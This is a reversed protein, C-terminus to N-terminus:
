VVFCGDCFFVCVCWVVGGTKGRRCVGGAIIWFSLWGQGANLFTESKWRM